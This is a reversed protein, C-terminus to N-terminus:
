APARQRLGRVEALYRARCRQVVGRAWREAQPHLTRSLTDNGIVSDETPRGIASLGPTVAGDAGRCRRM